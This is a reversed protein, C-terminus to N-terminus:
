FLIAYAAILRRNNTNTNGFAIRLLTGFVVLDTPVLRDVRTYTAGDDNSIHVDFGVPEPDVETINRIAPDNEGALAGFSSTADEGTDFDYLKWWLLVEDAGAGGTLPGIDITGSILGGPRAPAVKSNQPLVGVVNPMIGLPLPGVGRGVIARTVDGTPTFVATLDLDAIDAPTLFPNFVINSYMPFQVLLAQCALSSVDGGDVPLVYSSADVDVSVMEPIPVAIKGNFPRADGVEPTKEVQVINMDALSCIVRM